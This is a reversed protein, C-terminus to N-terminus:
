DAFAEFFTPFTGLFGLAVLVVTAVWRDGSSRANAGCTASCM